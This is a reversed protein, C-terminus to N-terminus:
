PTKARIIRSGRWAERNIGRILPCVYNRMTFSRNFIGKRCRQRSLDALPLRTSMDNVWTPSDTHRIDAPDLPCQTFAGGGRQRHGSIRPLFGAWFFGTQHWRPGRAPCGAWEAPPPEALLCPLVETRCPPTDSLAYMRCRLAASLAALVAFAELQVTECYPRFSSVRIETLAVSRCLIRKDV